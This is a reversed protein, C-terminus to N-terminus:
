KDDLKDRIEKIKKNVLKDNVKCTDCFKEDNYLSLITNCGGACRREKNQRKRRRLIKHREVIKEKTALNRCEISCYIQYSVTSEFYKDCWRCPKM